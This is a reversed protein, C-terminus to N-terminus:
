FMGCHCACVVIAPVCWLPLCVGCHCACVVIAPVYWLPLFVSYGDVIASDLVNSM